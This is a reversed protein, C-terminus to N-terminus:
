QWCMTFTCIAVTRNNTVNWMECCHVMPKWLKWVNNVEAGTGCAYSYFAHLLDVRTCVTPLTFSQKGRGSELQKPPRPYTPLKKEEASRTLQKQKCQQGIKALSKTSMRVAVCIFILLAKEGTLCVTSDVTSSKSLVILKHINFPFFSNEQTGLILQRDWSKASHHLIDDALLFCVSSVDM